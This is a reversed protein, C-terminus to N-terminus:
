VRIKKGIKANKSIKVISHLSVKKLKLLAKIHQIGMLGTGVFAINIKKM